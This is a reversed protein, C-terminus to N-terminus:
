QGVLLVGEGDGDFVAVTEAIQDDDVDVRQGGVARGRTRRRGANGVGGTARDRATDRRGVGVAIRQAEGPDAVVALPLTTTLASPM